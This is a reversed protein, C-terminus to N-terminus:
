IVGRAGDGALFDAVSRVYRRTYAAFAIVVPIPAALLVWDIWEM